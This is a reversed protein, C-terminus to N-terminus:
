SLEVSQEGFRSFHLLYYSREPPSYQSPINLYQPQIFGCYKFVAIVYLVNSTEPLELKVSSKITADIM